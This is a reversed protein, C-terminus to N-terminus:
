FEDMEYRDWDREEIAIELEVPTLLAQKYRAADDITVRPCATNVLADLKRFSILNEPTIEDLYVLYAKKGKKELNEKIKFALDPRMQGKKRGIIIGFTRADKAKAIKIFRKKIIRDKLPEMDRVENQQVDFAYTRKGTSLAVGLPHFDGSGIYVFNDVMGAIAKATSFSCGLVQGDHKTRGGAKGVHVEFGKEELFRKVKELTGIHQVTTVLGVGRELIGFNKELLPIPDMDVHIEIYHTPIAATELVPAHGFHFLADAGFIGFDRDALDCAGYCPDSSIIIRCDTKESIEDVIGTAYDKLGEPMQLGVTRYGNKKITEIIRDTEFDYM